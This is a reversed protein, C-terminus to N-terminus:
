DLIYGTPLKDTAEQDEEQKSKPINYKPFAGLSDEMNADVYGQRIENYDELTQVMGRRRIRLLELLAEAQVTLDGGVM